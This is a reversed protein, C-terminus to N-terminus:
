YNPTYLEVSSSWICFMQSHYYRQSTDLEFEWYPTSPCNRFWYHTNGLTTDLYTSFFSFRRPQKNPSIAQTLSSGLYLRWSSPIFRSLYAQIPCTLVMFLTLLPAFGSSYQTSQINMRIMLIIGLLLENMRSNIFNILM